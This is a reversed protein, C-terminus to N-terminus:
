LTYKENETIKNEQQKAKKRADSLIAEVEKDAKALKEDYQAKLALADTKEKEASDIDDRIKQKRKELLERAPNFLLYSLLMFLFFVAIAFLITDALLQPDLGFLYDGFDSEVDACLMAGAFLNGM